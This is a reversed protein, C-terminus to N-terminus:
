KQKKAEDQITESAAEGVVKVAGKGIKKTTRKVKNKGEKPMFLAGLGIATALVILGKKIRGM